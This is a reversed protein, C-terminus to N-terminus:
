FQCMYSNSLHECMISVRPLDKIQNADLFLEELSRAYRLVDDPIATLGWHRRDVSEVQQNCARFLPICKLMAAFDCNPLGGVCSFSLGINDLPLSVFPSPVYVCSGTIDVIWQSSEFWPVPSAGGHRWLALGDHGAFCTAFIRGSFIPDRSLQTPIDPIEVERLKSVSHVSLALKLMSHKDVSYMKQSNYEAM